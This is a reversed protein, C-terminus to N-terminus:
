HGQAQAERALWAAYALMNLNGDKDTPAGAEIDRAVQDIDITKGGAKSLIDAMQEPTLAALNIADNKEHPLTAM